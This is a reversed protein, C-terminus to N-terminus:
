LIKLNSEVITLLLFFSTALRKEHSKPITLLHQYYCIALNTKPSEIIALLCFSLNCKIKRLIWCHNFSSFFLSCTKRRSIQHILFFILLSQLNKKHVEVMAFKSPTFFGLLKILKILPSIECLQRHDNLEFPVNWQLTKLLTGFVLMTTHTQLTVLPSAKVQINTVIELGINRECIKIM